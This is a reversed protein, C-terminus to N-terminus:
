QQKVPSPEAGEAEESIILVQQADRGAAVSAAPPFGRVWIIETGSALVPWFRRQEVPIRRQRFLEKLKLFNRSGYPRFRDGARWNRLVLEGALRVPDVFVRESPSNYARGLEEPGVIKLRVTVGLEHVKVAAPPVVSYAFGSNKASPAQLGVTLWEFDRRAQLGGPLVVCRGSPADAALRYVADLHRHTIGALNGRTAQIMQRLVRRALPRPFDLLSRIPIKEVLGDRVRWAQARERALEDLFEEDERSRDALGKLLPVIDVGFDTRLSPILEMRVKNRRLMTNRNSSDTRFALNRRSIEAEIEARTLDLFPRFIKGELVPFVGGLGRAGTGRLLRLLVTEAQDNASHATVIKDLKGRAVLSFFFRYRLERATAELNRRRERALRAVDAEGRVMEIGAGRALERVFAEDEDSEAGRLHHNFHVASIVLGHSRALQRMFELLLVSDPGGSVAVGVRDGPRFYGARRTAAAWRTYLDAGRSM